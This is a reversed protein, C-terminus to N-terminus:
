NLIKTHQRRTDKLNNDREQQYNMILNVVDILTLNYYENTNTRESIFYNPRSKTTSCNSTINM